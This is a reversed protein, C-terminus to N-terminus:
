ENQDTNKKIFDRTLIIAAYSGKLTQLTSLHVSRAPIIQGEYVLDRTACADEVLTCHYGQDHAARVAAEVCMHTQMGCIVLSDVGSGRLIEDLQTEHFSNVHDKSLVPEGKEPRVGEHISGGPEFNHRVFVIPQGQERFHDLLLKVNAGALEPKVLEMKGGPFYFDQVDIILLATQQGCLGQSMWLMVPVLVKIFTNNM